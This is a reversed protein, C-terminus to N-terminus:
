LREWEEIIAEPRAPILVRSEMIELQVVELFAHDIGAELVNLHASPNPHGVPYRTHRSYVIQSTCCSQHKGLLM